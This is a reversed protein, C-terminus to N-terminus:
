DSSDSDIVADEADAEAAAGEEPSEAGGAAASDEHATDGSEAAGHADDSRSPDAMNMIKEGEDIYALDASRMGAPRRSWPGYARRASRTLPKVIM